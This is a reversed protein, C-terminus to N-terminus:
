GGSCSAPSSSPASRSGWSGRAARRRDAPRRRGAVRDVDLVGLVTEDPGHAHCAATTCAPQNQIPSVIASCAIAPRRQHLHPRARAGAAQDLPQDQAHCAFCAEAHKDLTHGIEDADSSFMIRGQKNFVRVREIREAHGIAEIQRQLRERRNELMYDETSRKVTESLLDASRTLQAIM